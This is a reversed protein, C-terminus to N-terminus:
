QFPWRSRMFDENEKLRREVWEDVDESKLEEIAEIVQETFQPFGGGVIVDPKEKYVADIVYNKLGKYISMDNVRVKVTYKNGVWEKNSLAILKFKSNDLNDLGLVDRIEELDINEIVEEVSLSENFEIDRVHRDNYTLIM